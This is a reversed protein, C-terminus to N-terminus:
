ICNGVENNASPLAYFIYYHTGTATTYDRYIESCSESDEGGKLLIYKKFSKGNLKSEFFSSVVKIAENESLPAEETLLNNFKDGCGVIPSLFLQLLLVM